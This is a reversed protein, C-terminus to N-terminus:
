AALVQANIRVWTGARTGAWVVTESPPDTPYTLIKIDARRSRRRASVRGLEKDWVFSVVDNVWTITESSLRSAPGATVLFLRCMSGRYGHYVAFRGCSCQLAYMMFGDRSELSVVCSVWQGGCLCPPPTNRLTTGM